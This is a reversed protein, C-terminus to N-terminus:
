LIAALRGNHVPVRHRRELPPRARRAACRVRPVARGSLLARFLRALRPMANSVCDRARSSTRTARHSCSRTAWGQEGVVLLSGCNSPFGRGSAIGIRARSEVTRKLRAEVAALRRRFRWQCAREARAVTWTPTTPAGCAAVLESREGRRKSRACAPRTSSAQWTTSGSRVREPMSGGRKRSVAKACRSTRKRRIHARM